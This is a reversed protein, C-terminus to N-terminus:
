STTYLPSLQSSKPLKTYKYAAGCCQDTLLPPQISHYRKASQEDCKSFTYMYFLNYDILMFIQLYPLLLLNSSWDSSFLSLLHVFNKMVWAATPHLYYTSSSHKEFKLYILVHVFNPSFFRPENPDSKIWKILKPLNKGFFWGM